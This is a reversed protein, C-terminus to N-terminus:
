YMANVADHSLTLLFSYKSKLVTDNQTILAPPLHYYYHSPEHKFFGFLSIENILTLLQKMMTLILIHSKENSGGKTNQIDYLRVLVAAM